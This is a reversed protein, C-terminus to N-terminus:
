CINEPSEEPVMSLEKQRHNSYLVDTNTLVNRQTGSQSENQQSEFRNKYLDFGTHQPESTSYVNPPTLTPSFVPLSAPLSEEVSLKALFCDADSIPHPVDLMYITKRSPSESLQFPSESEPPSMLEKQRMSRPSSGLRPLKSYDVLPSSRSRPSYTHDPSWEGQELAASNSSEISIPTASRNDEQELPSQSFSDTYYPSFLAPGPSTLISPPAM